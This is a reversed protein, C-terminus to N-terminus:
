EKKDQENEESESQGTMSPTAAEAAASVYDYNRGYISTGVRFEAPIEFPIYKRCMAHFVLFSGMAAMAHLPTLGEELGYTQAVFNTCYFGILSGALVDFVQHAHLYVRGFASLVVCAFAFSGAGYLFLVWSYVAAGAADGSPFAQFATEGELIIKQLSPYVREVHQIKSRLSVVPRMRRSSVKVVHNVTETFLWSCIIMTTVHGARNGLAYEAALNPVITSPVLLYKTAVFIIKVDGSPVIKFFMILGVVVLPLCVLGLWALLALSEIGDDEEHKWPLSVYAAVLPPMVFWAYPPMGFWTGPICILPELRGLQLRLVPLSLKSDVLDLWGGQPWWGLQYQRDNVGM